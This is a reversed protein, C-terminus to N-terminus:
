VKFKEKKNVGKVSGIISPLLTALAKLLIMYTISSENIFGTIIIGLLIIAGCIAGLLLGNEKSIRGTSFGGLYGGLALPVLLMFEIINRFLSGAIVSFLTIILVGAFVVAANVMVGVILAKVQKSSSNDKM